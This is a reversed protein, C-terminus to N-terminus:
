ELLKSQVSTADEDRGRLITFEKMLKAAHKRDSEDVGGNGSDKTVSLLHFDKRGKRIVLCQCYHPRYYADAM